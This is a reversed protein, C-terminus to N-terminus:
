KSVNFKFLVIDGDQMVYEKGEQRVLGKEKAALMSGEKMLDNYSVVEAKIFGREFDSHIKGAAQPAKTGKTITWARVETEGATLFSMLGLLDYSAKIVKDLGSEELGLAELMEKKDNGDLSSLEEEIKVCLKIVEAKDQKAYEKVSNVNADNEDLLQDESVNAVYLIPKMTLLFGDRVIELEEDTYELSRAPKGNQLAYLSIKRANVATGKLSITQNGYWYISIRQANPFCQTLNDARYNWYKYSNNKAKYRLDLYISNIDTFNQMGEFDVCHGETYHQALASDFDIGTVKDREQDSLIGDKNKDYQAVATRVCVDPFTKEDIKVSAADATGGAFCAIGIAAITSLIIKKWQIM